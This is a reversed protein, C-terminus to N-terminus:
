DGAFDKIKQWASVSEKPVVGNGACRSRDVRHGLGDDMGLIEAEPIDLWLNSPLLGESQEDPRPWGESGSRTYPWQPLGVGHPNTVVGVQSSRKDHNRPRRDQALASIVREDEAGKERLKCRSHAVFFVRERMHPAGVACATNTYPTGCFGADELEALVTAAYGNYVIGPVNEGLFGWAGSERLIRLTDPWYNREDAGGLRTKSAVSHPQCPFGGSVVDVMGKFESAPFTSVDDWIPADDLRGDRIRSMLVGQAYRDWECYAITRFGGVLKAGLDLGGAGSFLSINTLLGM